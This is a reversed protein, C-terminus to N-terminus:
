SQDSLWCDNMQIVYCSQYSVGIIFMCLGWLGLVWAFVEANTEICAYPDPPEPAAPPKNCGKEGLPLTHLSQRAHLETM